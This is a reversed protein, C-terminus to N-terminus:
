DAKLEDILQELDDYCADKDSASKYAKQAEKLAKKSKNNAKLIQAYIFRHEPDSSKKVVKNMIQEATNAVTEDLQHYLMLEEAVAVKEPIQDSIIQETLEYMSEQLMKIDNLSRAYDISSRLRFEEGKAPHYKIMTEQADSLLALSEFSMATRVTNHCAKEVKDLTAESGQINKIAEINDLYMDFVKTDSSVLAAFLFNALQEQNLDNNNRLFDNAIKGSPKQAQNLANIYNLVLDYNRDGKEYQEAFDGSRDYSAMVTKGLGIFDPTRKGGVSKKVIEGKEDIFFLTPFASVPYQRRFTIGMGEEMDIKMNIFNTNYFDGVSEQSFVDRAMRKCPGCWKAYADVFILKQEKAALEIAEEWTGHFFNIGQGVLSNTLLLVFIYLLTRM